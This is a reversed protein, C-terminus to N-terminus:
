FAGADKLVKTAEPLGAVAKRFDAPTAVRWANANVYCRMARDFAAPGARDRATLLAAAGKMYVTDFYANEGHQSWYSMPEAVRWKM